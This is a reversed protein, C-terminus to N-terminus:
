LHARVKERTQVSSQLIAPSLKRDSHTEESLGYDLGSLLGTYYYNFFSGFFSVSIRPRMPFIRHTLVFVVCGVGSIGNKKENKKPDNPKNKLVSSHIGGIHLCLGLFVSEPFRCPITQDYWAVVAERPHIRACVVHNSAFDM